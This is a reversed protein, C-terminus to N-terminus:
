PPTPTPLVGHGFPQGVLQAAPEPYRYPRAFNIFDHHDEDIAGIDRAPSIAVGRLLNPFNELVRAVSLAASMMAVVVIGLTPRDDQEVIDFRKKQRTMRDARFFPMEALVRDEEMTDVIKVGSVGGDYQSLRISRTSLRDHVTKQSHIQPAAPKPRLPPAVLGTAVGASAIEVM